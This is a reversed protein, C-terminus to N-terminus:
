YLASAVVPLDWDRILDLEVFKNVIASLKQTFSM